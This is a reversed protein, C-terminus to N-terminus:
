SLLDPGRCVLPEPSETAEFLVTGETSEARLGRDTRSVAWCKAVPDNDYVFCILGDRDFWVGTQCVGPTSSWTVRRDPGYAEVGFPSGDPLGFTLTKGTVYADFGAGDLPNAALPTALLVLALARIM